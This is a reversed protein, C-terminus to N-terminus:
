RAEGDMRLAAYFVAAGRQIRLLVHGDGAARVIDEITPNTQGDASLVIDGARLGARDAASGDLVGTVESRASGGGQQRLSLGIGRQVPAEATVVPVGPRPALRVRTAYRRGGRIVQLVVSDGVDRLLIERILDQADRLHKGDIVAVIDGPLLHGHAGPGDAAVDNVLAGGGARAGLDPALEPTVDQIGVGMWARKVRGTMALQGAVRRALNSPVAFGVGQGRGVIMTNIGLVRGDLDLLPGGSNGPNISADTQLYDEVANAGVAGRGKASLVGTTVSYGLGFPSGVAVVWDGVRAADSDAFQVPTLDRAEVKLVALDTAPDRGVLRASLIRGDHLRVAISSAGEVVHDNTLVTGDSTFVVGSGIGRERHQAVEIQVVSPGIREAVWSFAESLRRAEAAVRAHHPAAVALATSPLLALLPFLGRFFM